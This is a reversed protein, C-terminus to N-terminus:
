ALRVFKSYFACNLEDPNLLEDEIQQIENQNNEM